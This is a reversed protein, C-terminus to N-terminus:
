REGIRKKFNNYVSTSLKTVDLLLEVTLDPTKWDGKTILNRRPGALAKPPGPAFLAKFSGTEYKVKLITLPSDNKRLFRRLFTIQEVPAWSVDNKLLTEVM